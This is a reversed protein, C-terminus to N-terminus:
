RCSFWPPYVCRCETKTRSPKKTAQILTADQAISKLKWEKKLLKKTKQLQITEKRANKVHLYLWETTKEKLAWQQEKKPNQLNM